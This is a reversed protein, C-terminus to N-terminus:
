NKRVFTMESRSFKFGFDNMHAIVSRSLGLRLGNVYISLVTLNDIKCYTTMINNSKLYSILGELPIEYGTQINTYTIMLRM